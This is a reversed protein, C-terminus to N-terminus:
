KHEALIGNRAKASASFEADGLNTFNFEDLAAAGEQYNCKLQLTEVPNLGTSAGDIIFLMSYIKNKEAYPIDGKTSIWPGNETRIAVCPFDQGFVQLAYDHRSLERGYFLKLTIAAYLKQQPFQPFELPNLGTIRQTKKTLEAALVVGSRFPKKAAHSVACFSLLLLFILTKNIM